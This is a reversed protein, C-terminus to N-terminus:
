GHNIVEGVRTFCDKPVICSGHCENQLVLYNEDSEYGVAYAKNYILGYILGDGTNKEVFVVSFIDSM